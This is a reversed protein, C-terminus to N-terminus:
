NYMAAYLPRFQGKADQRLDHFQKKIAKIPTDRPIKDPFIMYAVTSHMDEGKLFVDLMARDNSFDAMLVSEQGCYDISIWANGKEACFCARTLEDAPLNQLQPYACKLATDKPATKSSHPLGKLKALSINQQQSGCALRGTDTGLQRFQTHIRNTKPNQANIYNQGYTSCVKHAETYALYVDYFDPNVKRQPALISADLSDKEEKTKKDIGRCNFGLMTLFPIVQKSSNWNIVCKPEGNEDSFMDQQISVGVFNAWPDTKAVKSKKLKKGRKNTASGSRIIDLTISRRSQKFMEVVFKNLSTHATEMKLTDKAMKETWLGENLHVGCYEYYAAVPVFQCEIRAAVMENRKRLIAMQRQMIDYLPMVDKAGYEVVTPHTPGLYNIQGRVEKSMHEGLYRYSLAKLSAGSYEFIFEALEADHAAIYATHEKSEMDEWNPCEDVLTCYRSILEDSAGIMFSPFGLYILQEAIMCDWVRRIVIGYNFCVQCDFKLNQGVIFYTELFEKFYKLSITTLDVCVQISKDINGFQALLGKDIHPDLGTTETDFQIIGKDFDRILGIAAPLSIVEYVTNPFMEQQNTVLYIM